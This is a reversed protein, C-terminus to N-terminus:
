RAIARLGSAQSAMLFSLAKALVKVRSPSMSLFGDGMQRSVSGAARISSRRRLSKMKEASREGSRTVLGSKM